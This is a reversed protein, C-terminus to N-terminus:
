FFVLMKSIRKFDLTYVWHIIGGIIRPYSICFNILDGSFIALIVCLYISLTISHILRVYFSALM